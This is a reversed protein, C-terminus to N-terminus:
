ETSGAHAASVLWKTHDGGPQPTRCTAHVLEITATTCVLYHRIPIHGACTAAGIATSSNLEPAHQAHQVPSHNFQSTVCTPLNVWTPLNVVCHATHACMCTISLGYGISITDTHHNSGVPKTSHTHSLCFSLCTHHTVQSHSSNYSNSHSTAYCGGTV